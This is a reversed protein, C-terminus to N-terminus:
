FKVVGNVVHYRGGNYGLYGSYGWAAKGGSVAYWNNGYKCLTTDTNLVGGKVYWWTGAYKCLTTAKFNVKGGQVYYWRGSYRCLTEAGFDIKGANVYWWTGAYKCLTRSSFDVKGGRVYWWTGAYKCLTTAKSNVAGNQVYFWTGNYKCLTTAKFNVAGNQVYFWTGNYKCLTTAKFNVAGNQVYFWTGNYKCLTTAKFNVAGNKVYYWTGNYKCLTTAKFDVVGNKVYWWTGNYKCLTTADFNVKGNQIYYWVGMYNFLGTYDSVVMGNEVYYWSGNYETLLTSRELAGNSIYFFHGDNEYLGTEKLDCVGNRFAYLERNLGYFSNFDTVLAGLSTMYLYGNYEVVGNSDASGDKVFYQKGEYTVFGTYSTDIDGNKYYRLGDGYDHLGNANVKWHAYLTHDADTTVKTDNSVKDGTSKDTYWGAFIYGDRSPTPLDNYNESYVVNQGTVDCTGGNADFSVFRLRKLSNDTFAKICINGGTYAIMAGNGYDIYSQGVSASSKFSLQGQGDSYDTLECEIGGGSTTIVVSYSTGPALEVPNKLSVTYYGAYTTKGSTTASEQKIGSLPNEKDKLNTYIEIKYSMNTSELNSFSVASLIESGIDGKEQTKFINAYKACGSLNYSYPSGDYQYNNDYNDAKEADFVWATDTLSKTEYSMWFYDCYGEGWSNRVLWAGNNKPKSGYYDFNDKSYGDNWGVIMVAHDATETTEDYFSYKIGDTSDSLYNCVNGQSRYSVGVAGHNMIERKVYDANKKINILYTNQLHATDYEYAYNSVMALVGSNLEDLDKSYPVDKEDTYGCWKELTRSAFFYNGGYNLPGKEGNLTVSDGETGGLPDTVPNYTYYALQLESLDINKDALGDNILDYEAMGVSAFAWCTGYPNQDRIAPYKEKQEDATAQYAKPIDSAKLMNSDSEDLVPTDYDHDDPTYGNAQAEEATIDQAEEVPDAKVAEAGMGAVAIMAAIAPIFFKKSCGKM